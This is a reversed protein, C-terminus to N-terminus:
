GAGFAIFSLRPHVVGFSTAMAESSDLAVMIAASPKQLTLRFLGRLSTPLFTSTM